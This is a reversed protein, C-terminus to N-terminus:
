IKGQCDPPFLMEQALPNKRHRAALRTLRPVVMSYSLYCFLMSEKKSKPQAAEGRQEKKAMMQTYHQRGTFFDFPLSFPFFSFGKKKVGNKEPFFFFIKVRGVPQTIGQTTQPSM